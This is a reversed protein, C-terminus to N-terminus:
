TELGNKMKDKKLWRTLRGSNNEGAIYEGKTTIACQCEKTILTITKQNIEILGTAILSEIFYDFELGSSEIEHIFEIEQNFNISDEFCLREIIKFQLNNLFVPKWEKNEYPEELKKKSTPIYFYEWGKREGVEIYRCDLFTHMTELELDEGFIDSSIEFMYSLRTWLIELLYYIPNKSSSTLVSWWNDATITSGIPMGNNKLISYKGCIILNPLNLPGFGRIEASGIPSSNTELYEIFSQRLSYESKFGNYGWVIRLPYFAEMLLIHYIMEKQISLKKLFERGPLKEQCISRWAADLLRMHFLESDRLEYLEPRSCIKESEMILWSQRM